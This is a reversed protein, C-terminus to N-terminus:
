KTSSNVNPSELALKCELVGKKGEEESVAEVGAGGVFVGVKIYQHVFYNVGQKFDISIQNDSFESETSIVHTGPAVEKYFYTNAASEGIVSGDLSVTKKLATGFSSNRYVYLGSKGEAPASFTKKAKDTDVSAMPVSACGSLHLSAIIAVSTIIKKFM